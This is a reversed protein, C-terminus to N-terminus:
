LEYLEPDIGTSDLDISYNLDHKALILVDKILKVKEIGFYDKIRNWNGVIFNFISIALIGNVGEEVKGEIDDIIFILYRPLYYISDEFELYTFVYPCANVQWDEIESWDNWKEEIVNCTEGWDDAIIADSLLYKPKPLKPFNELIQNRLQM